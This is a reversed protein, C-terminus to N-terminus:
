RRHIKPNIPLDALHDFWDASQDDLLDAQLADDSLEDLADLAAYSADFAEAADQSHDLNDTAYFPM